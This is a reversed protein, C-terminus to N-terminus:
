AKFLAVRTTKSGGSMRLGGSKGRVVGGWELGGM